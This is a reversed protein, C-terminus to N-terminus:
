PANPPSKKHAYMAKDAADIVHDLNEDPRFEYSGFAVGIGITNGRYVLPKREVAAALSAAKEAAAERGVHVLIVGFEDGGLRGVIDFERVSAVLAEAVSVLAADGAAHGYTDNIEKLENLDFYLVSCPVGYRRAYSMTRSLERTFARRNVVPVLSDQDALRELYGVRGRAEKLDRRLEEVEAVLGLMAERATPTLENEPVGAIAVAGAAEAAGAAPPPGAKAPAARRTKGKDRTTMM